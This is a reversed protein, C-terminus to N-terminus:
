CYTDHGSRIQFLLLIPKEFYPPQSPPPSTGPKLQDLRLFRFGYELQDDTGNSVLLTIVNKDKRFEKIEVYGPIGLNTKDNAQFDLGALQKKFENFLLPDSTQFSLLSITKDATINCGLISRGNGLNRANYILSQDITTFSDVVVYSLRHVIASLAKFDSMENIAVLESIKIQNPGQSSTRLLFGTLLFVILFFRMYDLKEDVV